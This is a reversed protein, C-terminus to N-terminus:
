WVPSPRGPSPTWAPRSRRPCCASPPFWWRARCVSARKCSTTTFSNGTLLKWYTRARAPTRVTSAVGTQQSLSDRSRHHQRSPEVTLADQATQPVTFAYHNEAEMWRRWIPQNFKLSEGTTVSEHCHIPAASSQSVGPVSGEFFHATTTSPLMSNCSRAAGGSFELVRDASQRENGTAPSGMASTIGPRSKAPAHCPDGVWMESKVPSRSAM